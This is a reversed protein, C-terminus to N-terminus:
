CGIECVGKISGDVFFTIDSIKIEDTAQIHKECFPIIYQKNAVEEKQVLATQLEEEEGCGFASCFVKKVGSQKKWHNLATGCVCHLGTIVEIIKVYAM